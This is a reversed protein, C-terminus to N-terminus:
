HPLGRSVDRKELKSEDLSSLTSGVAQCGQSQDTGYSTQNVPVAHPIVTQRIYRSTHRSFMATTARATSIYALRGRFGRLRASPFNECVAPLLEERGFCHDSNTKCIHRPQASGYSTGSGM